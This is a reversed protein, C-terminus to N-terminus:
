LPFPIKHWFLSIVIILHDPHVRWFFPLTEKREAFLVGLTTLPRLDSLDTLLYDVHVAERLYLTRLPHPTPSAPHEM